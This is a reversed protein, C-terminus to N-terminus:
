TGIRYFGDVDDIERTTHAEDWGLADAMVRAARNVADSGPHGASGAETRRILADSLRVASEARVAYLIEAGTVPCDRGLPETLAPRENALRVVADYGTGYTLALRRLADKSLSTDARSTAELLLRDKNDIAGGNVPTHATASAPARGGRQRFVADIADEATARATTYRVGFMSVLGPAGALAHDVVLSERLLNVHDGSGSVMPLLGRHVLRVDDPTLQAGPFAERADGLFKEIDASSVALSDANGDHADHSTGVLTVQRWPALFLFRGAALGGCGQEVPVRKVVLNMARSLRPAATGGGAGARQLFTSAWPGAANLVSDAQIDFREGSVTDRASVGSVRAGSRLLGDAAVYNAASAGRAAASLVFSLTM